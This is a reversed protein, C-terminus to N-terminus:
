FDSQQYYVIFCNHMHISNYHKKFLQCKPSIPSTYNLIKLYRHVNKNYILEFHRLVHIEIIIFRILIWWWIIRIYDENIRKSCVTRRQHCFLHNLHLLKRLYYANDEVIPFWLHWYIATQFKRNKQKWLFIESKLVLMTQLTQVRKRPDCLNGATAWRAEFRLLKGPILWPSVCDCM